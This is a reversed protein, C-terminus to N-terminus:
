GGLAETEKPFIVVHRADGEGQSETYVQPHDKLAIHVARREAPSMPPLAVPKGEALVLELSEMALRVARDERRKRYGAADISARYERGFHKSLVANVLQELAKLTRGDRGILRGLDGGLVEVYIRNGETKVEITYAPDLYLLLGVLFHEVVTEPTKPVDPTPASDIPPTHPADEEGIGLGELLDDLNKKKESM